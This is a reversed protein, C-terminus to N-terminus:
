KGAGKALKSIVRWSERQEEEDARERSIWLPEGVIPQVKSKMTLQDFKERLKKMSLIVTQWFPDRQSWEVLSTIEEITRNDVRIM